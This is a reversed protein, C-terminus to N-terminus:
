SQREIAESRLPHLAAFSARHERDFHEPDWPVPEIRHLEGPELVYALASVAPGAALVVSVRAREYELGEFRDLRELMDLTLDHYVAGATRAGPEPVIAPYSEGRLRYRAYGDLTADSRRPLARTVAEFIDPFLLSGYVFVDHRM